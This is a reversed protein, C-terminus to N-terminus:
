CCTFMHYVVHMVKEDLWLVGARPIPKWEKVRLERFNLEEEDGDEYLVKYWKKRPDFSVIKGTFLKEEFFKCVTQGVMAEGPVDGERFQQQLQLAFAHRSVCWISNVDKSGTKKTRRNHCSGGFKNKASRLITSISVKSAVHGERNERAKNVIARTMQTGFGDRLCKAVARHEGDNLKSHRDSNKAGAKKGADIVQEGADQCKTVYTIVSLIQERARHSKLGIFDRIVNIIGDHGSWQDEGGQGIRDPSGLLEFTIQILRRKSAQSLLTDPSAPVVSDVTTVTEATAEVVPTTCSAVVAQKAPNTATGQNRTTILNILPKRKM